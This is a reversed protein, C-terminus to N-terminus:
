AKLYTFFLDFCMLLYTGWKRSLVGGEFSRKVQSITIIIARRSHAGGETQLSNGGDRNSCLLEDQQKKM